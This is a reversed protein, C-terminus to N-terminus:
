LARVFVAPVNGNALDATATPTTTFNRWTNLTVGTHRILNFQNAATPDNRLCIAGTSAIARLTPQTGTNSAQLGFWYQKGQSLTYSVTVTRTGATSTSISGSTLVPAGTPWGNAGSEYIAVACNNTQTTSVNVALQDITLNKHCRYPTYYATAATLALTTFADNQVNTTEYWTSLPLVRPYSFPISWTNNGCLYTDEMPTGTASLETVGIVAADINWVTGGSSVTIDGKDGDSVGGSISAWTSDGRLFTLSSASGSGLRATDITGSTIDSTSHVHATPTRSDSLRSDNGICVTSATSGTPIQAINFTGSTVDSAAHVHALPTRADSLRGDNGVCVTSATTGTPIRAINFTGSTVDATTHVHALPTRADSLRGDNGICVTSATTGTPIQAINFIGSTVDGAVHTHALPTRADTLRADNGQCVTGAATGFNAAITGSTTITGGTLGSGATVSTVGGGTTGAAKKAIKEIENQELRNFQSM